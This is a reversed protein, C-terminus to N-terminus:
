NHLLYYICPTYSCVFLGLNYPVLHQTVIIEYKESVQEKTQLHLLIDCSDTNNLRPYHRGSHCSFSLLYSIYFKIIMILLSYECEIKYGHGILKM